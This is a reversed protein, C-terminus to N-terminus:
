GKEATAVVGADNIVAKTGETIKIESDPANSMVAVAKATREVGALMRARVEPKFSRITGVLAVDDPIINATTGGHIAGISVVIL